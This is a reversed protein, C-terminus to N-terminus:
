GADLEEEIAFLAEGLECPENGERCAACGLLHQDLVSPGACDCCDYCCPEAELDRPDHRHESAAM